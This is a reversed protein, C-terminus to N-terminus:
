FFVLLESDFYYVVTCDEFKVQIQITMKENNTNYTELIQGEDFDRTSIKTLKITDSNDNLKYKKEFFIFKRNYKSAFYVTCQQKKKQSEPITIECDFMDGYYM